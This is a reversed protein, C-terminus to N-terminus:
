GRMRRGMVWVLWVLVVNLGLSWGGYRLRIREWRNLKREVEYPKPVEVRRVREVYYPVRVTVTAWPWIGLSHLLLGQHWEARSYAYGNKLFSVTDRVAVSDRYPVLLREFVTDRVAISDTVRTEVPVYVRKVGGCGWLALALLWVAAMWVVVRGDM